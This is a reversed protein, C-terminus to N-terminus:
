TWYAIGVRMNHTLAPSLTVSLTLGFLAHAVALAYINRFRRFLWCFVLGMLLTASILVANPIHALSFLVATVLIAPSSRITDEMRIFIFSMTLYEQVLAWVLYLLSHWLPTRAGTLGHLSGAVYAAALMAASLCIASPVIWLSQRLGAKGIGLEAASRHSRLSSYAVWLLMAIAWGIQASGRSWLAAELLAYVIAVELLARTKTIHTSKEVVQRSEVTINM